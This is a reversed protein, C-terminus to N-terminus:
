GRALYEWVPVPQAEQYGIPLLVDGAATLVYVQWQHYGRYAAPDQRMVEAFHSVARVYRNSRNYGFLAGHMDQPAGGHALYRGAALIADRASRVDGEGFADWTAPMFQMPGQAGASSIGDVRGTATEVLHIAALYEWPVGHIRQAEDYYGRLEEAPLPEVIRWAPLVELLRTHMGRLERRAATNALVAHQLEPPTRALIAEDWDPRDAAVRYAVQQLHAARALSAADTSPDRVTREAAVLQDALGAPDGAVAPMETPPAPPATTPAATTPATTTPTTTPVATTTPATTTTTTDASTSPADTTAGEVETAAGDSGDGGACAGAVLAAAAVFAAVAPRM